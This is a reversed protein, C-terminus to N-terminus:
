KLNTIITNEYHENSFKFTDSVAKNYEDTASQLDPYQEGWARLGFTMVWFAGFAEVISLDFIKSDSSIRTHKILNM